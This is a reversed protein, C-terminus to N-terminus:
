KLEALVDVATEASQAETEMRESQLRTAWNTLNVQSVAQSSQALSLLEDLSPLARKVPKAVAWSLAQAVVGILRLKMLPYGTNEITWNAPSNKDGNPDILYIPKRQCEIEPHDRTFRAQVPVLQAESGLIVEVEVNGGLEARKESLAEEFAEGFTLSVELEPYIELVQTLYPALDDGKQSKTNQESCFRGLVSMQGNRNKQVPISGNISVTMIGFSELAQERIRQLEAQRMLAQPDNGTEQMQQFMSIFQNMDLGGTSGVSETALTNAAKARVM